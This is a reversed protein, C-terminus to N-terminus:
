CEARSPQAGLIRNLGTQSAIITMLLEFGAATKAMSGQLCGLILEAQRAMFFDALLDSISRTSVAQHVLNVLTIVAMCFVFSWIVVDKVGPQLTEVM